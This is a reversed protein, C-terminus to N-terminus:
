KKNKKIDEKVERIFQPLFPLLIAVATVLLVVTVIVIENNM